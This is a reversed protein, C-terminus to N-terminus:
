TPDCVGYGFLAFDKKYLEYAIKRTPKDYYQPWAKHRSKNLHPFKSADLQLRQCVTKINEDLTEFRGLFDLGCSDDGESIWDSQPQFHVHGFVMELRDAVFKKFDGGYLHVHERAFKEDESNLGGSDLYSFASVLRDFPHRVFSFKFYTKFWPEQYFDCLPQHGYPKEIWTYSGDYDRGVLPLGFLGLVSKGATKPVHIFLCRHRHSIM